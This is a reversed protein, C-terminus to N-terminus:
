TRQTSHTTPSRAVPRTEALSTPKSAHAVKLQTSRCDLLSHRWWLCAEAVYPMPDGKELPNAQPPHRLIGRGRWVTLAGQRGGGAGARASASAASPAHHWCAFGTARLRRVGAGARGYDERAGPLRRMPAVM